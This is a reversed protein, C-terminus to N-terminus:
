RLNTIGDGPQPTCHAGISTWGHHTVLADDRACFEIRQAQPWQQHIFDEISAPLSIAYRHQGLDSDPHDSNHLLPIVSAFWVLIDYRVDVMAPRYHMQQLWTQAEQRLPGQDPLQGWALALLEALWQDCNQFRTSYAYANASYNRGLLGLAAHRDLAAAILQREALPPLFVISAYIDRRDGNDQYFGALGQDYIHPTDEDCAYYLQRVSWPTNPSDQLSVGAHTYRIALWDLSTGSRSVIAAHHGSTELRRRIAETLLLARNKTAADPEAQRGCLYLSDGRAPMSASLLLGAMCIMWAHLCYSLPKM